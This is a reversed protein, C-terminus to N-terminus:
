SVGQRISPRGSTDVIVRRVTVNPNSSVGLVYTVGGPSTLRGDNRYTIVAPSTMDDLGSTSSGVTKLVIAGAQV